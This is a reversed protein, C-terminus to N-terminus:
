LEESMEDLAVLGLWSKSFYWYVEENNKKEKEAMKYSELCRTEIM